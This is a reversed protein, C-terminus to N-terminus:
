CRTTTFSSGFCPPSPRGRHTFGMMAEFTEKEDGLLGDLVTRVMNVSDREGEMFFEVVAMPVGM